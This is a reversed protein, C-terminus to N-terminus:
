RLGAVTLFFFFHRILFCLREYHPVKYPGSCIVTLRKTLDTDSVRSRQLRVVWLVVTKHAPSWGDTVSLLSPGQLHSFLVSSTLQLPLSPPPFFWLLPLPLNLVQLWLSFSQLLIQKWKLFTNHSIHMEQSRAEASKLSFSLTFSHSLALSFILSPSPWLPSPLSFLCRETSQATKKLM